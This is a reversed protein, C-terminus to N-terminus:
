CVLALLKQKTASHLAVCPLTATVSGDPVGNFSPLNEPSLSVEGGIVDILTHCGIVVSHLM